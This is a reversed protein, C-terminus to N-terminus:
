HDAGAADLAAVVRDLGEPLERSVGALWHSTGVPVPTDILEHVLAVMADDGIVEAGTTIIECATDLQWQSMAASGQEPQWEDIDPTGTGPYPEPDWCSGGDSEYALWLAIGEGLWTSSFHHPDIWARALQGPVFGDVDVQESIRVVGDRPRLDAWTYDRAQRAVQRIRLEGYPLPTGLISELATLSEGAVEAAEAAWDDHGPWSEVVVLSQGSEGTVYTRELARPDHAEVCDAFSWPDKKSRATVYTAEPWQEIVVDEDYSVEWGAPLVAKTTGTDGPMGWWCFFAYAEEIRTRGNASEVTNSPLDFGITVKQKAGKENWLRPYTVSYRLGDSVEEAPKAKVKPGGIVVNEAYAPTWFYKWDYFYPRSTITCTGRGNKCKGKRQTTKAKNTLTVVSEVHVVGQEPLLTYTTNTQEKLKDDLGASAPVALAGVLVIALALAGTTSGLLHDIRDHM